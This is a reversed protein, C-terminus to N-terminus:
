AATDKDDLPGRDTVSNLTLLDALPSFSETGTNRPLSPDVDGLLAKLAEDFRGLGSPDTARSVDRWRQYAQAALNADSAWLTALRRLPRDNLEGSFAAALAELAQIPPLGSAPGSGYAPLSLATEDEDSHGPARGHREFLGDPDAVLAEQVKHLAIASPIPRDEIAVGRAAGKARGCLKEAMAHADYFPHSCKVYCIGAAATLHTPLANPNGAGQAALAERLQGMWIESHKEFAQLFARTFPLALEARVLITLDDGGLVLPRAPLVHHEQEPLLVNRSAEQAAALTTATIGQSFKRYLRAYPVDGLASTGADLVRLLQGFGNGDAHVLGVLRREGLPFRRGSRVPADFDTPWQLGPEDLFRRVLHGDADSGQRDFARQRATAADVSEGHDREVAPAGTRPARENIPSGAPLVPQPRNRAIRLAAHGLRIAERVSEGGQLADVPEVGPLEHAATLRWLARFREADAASDFILYFAAGAARVRQPPTPLAAVVQDLLGGEACLHDLLESGGILDRLRGTAFLYRQIGRVEFLYAYKM